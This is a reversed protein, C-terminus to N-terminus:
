PPLIAWQVRPLAQLRQRREHTPQFAVVAKGPCRLADVDRLMYVLRHQQVNKFPPVNVSFACCCQGGGDGVMQQAGLGELTLAAAHGGRLLLNVGMTLFARLPLVEFGAGVTELLQKHQQVTLVGAGSVKARSREAQKLVACKHVPKCV